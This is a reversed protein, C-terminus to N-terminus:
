HLLIGGLLALAFALRLRLRRRLKQLRLEVRAVLLDKLCQGKTSLALLQANEHREHTDQHIRHTDQHTRSRVRSLAQFVNQASTNQLIKFTNWFLIRFMDVM